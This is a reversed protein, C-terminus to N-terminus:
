HYTVTRLSSFPLRQHDRFIEPKFHPNEPRARRNGILRTMSAPRALEKPIREVQSWSDYHHVTAGAEAISAVKLDNMQWVLIM